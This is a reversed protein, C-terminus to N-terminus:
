FSQTFIFTVVAVCSFVVFDVLVCPLTDHVGLLQRMVGTYISLFFLLAICQEMSEKNHFIDRGETGVIGFKLLIAEPM